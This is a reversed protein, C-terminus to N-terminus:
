STLDKCTVTKGVTGRFMGAFGDQADHWRVHASYATAEAEPFISRMPCFLAWAPVMQQMTM